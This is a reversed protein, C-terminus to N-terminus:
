RKVKYDVLEIVKTSDTPDYHVSVTIQQIGDDNTSGNNMADLRVATISTDPDASVYSPPANVADYPQNKIYEMPSRARSEANARRDALLVTKSATSLAGLIGAAILGMLAMAILVEILTFGKESNM